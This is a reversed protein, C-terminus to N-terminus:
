VRRKTRRRPPVLLADLRRALRDGARQRGVLVERGQVRHCLELFHELLVRLHLLEVVGDGVAVVMAGVRLVGVLELCVLLVDPVAEGPQDPAEDTRSKALSCTVVIPLGSVLSGWARSICTRS